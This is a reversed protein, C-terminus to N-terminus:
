LSAPVAMIDERRCIQKVKLLMLYVKSLTRLIFPPININRRWYDIYQFGMFSSVEKSGILKYMEISLSKLQADFAILSTKSQEGYHTLLFVYVDKILPIVRCHLYDKIEVDTIDRKHSEYYLVMDLACQAVHQMSKQKMEPNVTQGTRGILYKYVIKNFCSVTEVSIMPLFIWEQDTYSIGETQRYGLTLLNKRLYTVAHMQMNKFVHTRCISKLKLVGKEEFQYQIIKKIERETNVVAFDSLILDSDIGLLFSVFEDFNDTDFSDDADLVKVYKGHAEKLGVNVCSGYNGNEKDIVKFVDPYLAEFEHAIESSADRSGDNIILVELYKFNKKILLSNLCYRLFNEMNYTPIIVTLVKDM